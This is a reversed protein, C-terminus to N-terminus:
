FGALPTKDFTVVDDENSLDTTLDLSPKALFATSRDISLAGFKLTVVGGTVDYCVWPYAAVD